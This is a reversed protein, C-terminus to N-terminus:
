LIINKKKLNNSNPMKYMPNPPHGTIYKTKLYEYLISEAEAAKPLRASDEM